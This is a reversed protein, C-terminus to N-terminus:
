YDFAVICDCMIIKVLAHQILEFTKFIAIKCHGRSRFDHFGLHEEDNATSEKSRCEEEVLLSTRLEMKSVHTEGEDWYTVVSTLLMVTVGASKINFTFAEDKRTTYQHGLRIWLV